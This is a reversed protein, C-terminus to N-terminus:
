PPDTSGPDRSERAPEVDGGVSGCSSVVSSSFVLSTWRAGKSGSTEWSRHFCHEPLSNDKLGKSEIGLRNDAQYCGLNSHNM